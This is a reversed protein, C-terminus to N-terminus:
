QPLKIEPTWEDDRTDNGINELEHQLEEETLGAKDALLLTKIFREDCDHRAPDVRAIDYARRLRFELASLLSEVFDGINMDFQKSRSKLQSHAKEDMVFQFTKVPTHVQSLNGGYM